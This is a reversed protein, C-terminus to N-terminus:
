CNGVLCSAEVGVSTSSLAIAGIIGFPSGPGAVGVKTSFVWSLGALSLGSSSIMKTRPPFMENWGLLWTVLDPRCVRTGALNLSQFMENSTVGSETGNRKLSMKTIVKSNTVLEADITTEIVKNGSLSETFHPHPHRVASPPRRVASPVTIFLFYTIDSKPFDDLINFSHYSLYSIVSYRLKLEQLKRVIAHLKYGHRSTKICFHCTGFCRSRFPRRM